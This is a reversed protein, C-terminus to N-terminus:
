LCREEQVQVQHLWYEALNSLEALEGELEVQCPHLSTGFGSLPLFVFFHSGAGLQNGMKRDGFYNVQEQALCIAGRPLSRLILTWWYNMTLPQWLGRRAGLLPSAEVRWKSVGQRRAMLADRWRPPFVSSPNCISGGNGEYIIDCPHPVSSYGPGLCGCILGSFLRRSDAYVLHWQETINLPVPFLRHKISAYIMNYISLAQLTRLNSTDSLSLAIQRTCDLPMVQNLLIAESCRHIAVM